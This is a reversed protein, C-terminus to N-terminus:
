REERWSGSAIVKCRRDKLWESPLLYVEVKRGDDITIEERRYFTPHGELRDLRNLMDPDDVEYLEGIISTTGERVVGPFGGLHLMTFDPTTRVDGILTAGDLLRHNGCGAMLTGYVFILHKVQEM